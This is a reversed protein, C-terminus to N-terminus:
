KKMSGAPRNKDADQLGTSLLVLVEEVTNVDSFPKVRIEQFLKSQNTTKVSIVKGLLLGKPFMADMGSTIIIDGPEVDVGKEIYELSCGSRGQGALIGRARNRQVIAAIRSQYDNILMVRSFSMGTEIVRGIVGGTSLVPMDPMIGDKRGMDITVVAKWQALDCGVIHALLSKDPLHKKIKLLQRLRRNEIVAERYGAIEERLRAVQVKLIKNEERVSRLDVYSDWVAALRSFPASMVQELKCSADKFMTVAPQMIGAARWRVTVIGIVGAFIILCAVIIIKEGPSKHQNQPM